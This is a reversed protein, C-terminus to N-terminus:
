ITKETLDGNHAPLIRAALSVTFILKILKKAFELFFYNMLKVFFILDM